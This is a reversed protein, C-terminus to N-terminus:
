CKIQNFHLKFGVQPSSTDDNPVGDEMSAEEFDDTYFNIRFLSPFPIKKLEREFNKLCM